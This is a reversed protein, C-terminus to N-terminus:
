SESFPVSQQKWTSSRKGDGRLRLSGRRSLYIPLLVFKLGCLGLCDKEACLNVNVLAHARTTVHFRAKAATTSTHLQTFSTVASWLCLPSFLCTM